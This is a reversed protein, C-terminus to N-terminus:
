KEKRLALAKEPYDTFVASIGNQMFLELYKEENVTFPRLPMGATQAGQVLQPVTAVPWYCHLGTAHIQRAYNWPEYLGEMFLIATEIEPNIRHAEVLSYHNFSSLIVRDQLKYAEVQRIVKEELHPYPIVGTKLEINLLLSNDQAWQLVDSLAPIKTGAFSADFWSGSDLRQLEDFTLDKVWGSGNTTREVQEDHIIVPVGDKTLQVDFEIGDCGVRHAEQFSTM